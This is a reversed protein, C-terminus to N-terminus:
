LMEVSRKVFATLDKITLIHNDYLETFKLYDKITM